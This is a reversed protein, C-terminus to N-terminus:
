EGVVGTEGAFRSKWFAHGLVVVSTGSPVGDEDPSFFRGVSPRAGLAAFYHGSAAITRVETAEAGRGMVMTTMPGVAAVAAFADSRQLARFAPYSTTTASFREGEPGRRELVIRVVRSPETIGPPAALMLRTVLGFMAANAGIALAFTALVAAVLAPDRRLSRLSYGIM